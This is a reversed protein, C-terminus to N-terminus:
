YRHVGYSTTPMGLGGKGSALVIGIVAGAVVVAGVGTWFPWRAYFPRAPSHAASEDSTSEIPTVATSLSPQPVPEPPSTRTPPSPPLAEVVPTTAAPAPELARSTPAPAPQSSPQEELEKIKAEAMSRQEGKTVSRLYSRYATLAKQREGALRWAQGINFLMNADMSQEYAAEYEKAAEVYRGLNYAVTAKRVHTRAQEVDGEAASLPRAVAALLVLILLRTHGFM